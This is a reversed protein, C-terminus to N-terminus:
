MALIRIRCTGYKDLLIGFPLLLTYWILTVCSIVVELKSEQEPCRQLERAVTEDGRTSGQENKVDHENPYLATYEDITLTKLVKRYFCKMKRGKEDDIEFPKDLHEGMMGPGPIVGSLHNMSPTDMVTINRSCEHLFYKEETMIMKLWIWGNLMGAILLCELVCWIFTIINMGIPLGM